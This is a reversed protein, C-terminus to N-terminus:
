GVEVEKLILRKHHLVSPNWYEEVGLIEFFRDQWQLRDQEKAVQAPSLFAVWDRVVVEEGDKRERALQVQMFAKANSMKSTLDPLFRAVPNGYADTDGSDIWSHIVIDHKLLDEIM